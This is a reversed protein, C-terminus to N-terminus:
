GHMVIHDAELAPIPKELALCHLAGCQPVIPFCAFYQDWDCTMTNTRCSCDPWERKQLGETVLRTSARALPVLNGFGHGVNAPDM